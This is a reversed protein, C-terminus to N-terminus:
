TSSTSGAPSAACTRTSTTSRTSIGRATRRTRGILTRIWDPSDTFSPPSNADTQEPAVWWVHFRHENESLEFWGLLDDYDRSFLRAFRWQNRDFESDIELIVQQSTLVQLM